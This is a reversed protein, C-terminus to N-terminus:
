CAYPNLKLPPFSNKWCSSLPWDVFVGESGRPLMSPRVVVQDRGAWETSSSVDQYVRKWGWCAEGVGHWTLQSRRRPFLFCWWWFFFILLLLGFLFLASILNRSAETLKQSYWHFYVRLGCRYNPLASRPFSTFSLSHCSYHSHRPVCWLSFAADACVCACVYM